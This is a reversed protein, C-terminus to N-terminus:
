VFRIEAENLYASGTLLVVLMLGLLVTFHPLLVFDFIRKLKSRPKRVRDAQVQMVSARSELAEYGVPTYNFKCFCLQMKEVNTVEGRCRKKSCLVDHPCGTYSMNWKDDDYFAVLVVYFRSRDSRVACYSCDLLFRISVWGLLHISM